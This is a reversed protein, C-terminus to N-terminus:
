RAVFDGRTILSRGASKQIDSTVTVGSQYELDLLDTGWHLYLFLVLVQWDPAAISLLLHWTARSWYAFPLETDFRHSNVIERKKILAWDTWATGPDDDFENKMWSRYLTPSSGWKEIKCILDSGAVSDGEKIQINHVKGAHPASIVM